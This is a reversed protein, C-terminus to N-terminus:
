RVTLEAVMGRREHPWGGAARLPCLIAYAGPELRVWAYSREGVKLRPVGGVTFAIADDGNDQFIDAIHRDTRLRLFETVHEAPGHNEVAVLHWGADLAHTSLHYAYDTTRITLDPRPPASHAARGRRNARVRLLAHMGRNVHLVGASDPITCVVLYYGAELHLLAWTDTSTPSTVGDRQGGEVGGASASAPVPRDWDREWTALARLASDAAAPDRVRLFTAHHFEHGDSHFRVTTWGAGVSTPLALRYETARIVLDASPPGSRQAAADTFPVCLAALGIVHHVLRTM